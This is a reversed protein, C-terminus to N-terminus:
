LQASNAEYLPNKLVDIKHDFFKTVSIAELNKHSKPTQPFESEVVGLCYGM